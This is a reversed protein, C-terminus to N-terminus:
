LTCIRERVRAGIMAGTRIEGGVLKAGALMHLRHHMADALPAVKLLDGRQWRRAGRHEQVPLALVRRQDPQMAAGLGRDIQQRQQLVVEVGVPPELQAQRVVKQAKGIGDGPAAIQIDARIGDAIGAAQGLIRRAGHAGRLDALADAGAATTQRLHLGLEIGILGLADGKEGTATAGQQRVVHAQALRQLGDRCGVPQVAVVTDLAHQHDARCRQLQLPRPLDLAKGAGLRL